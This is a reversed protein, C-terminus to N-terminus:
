TALSEGTADKELIERRILSLTVSGQARLHQPKVVARHNQTLFTADDAMRAQIRIVFDVIEKQPLRIRMHSINQSYGFNYKRILVDMVCFWSHHLDFTGCMRKSINSWKPIENQASSYHEYHKAFHRCSQLVIKRLERLALPWDFAGNGLLFNPNKYDTSFEWMGIVYTPVGIALYTYDKLTRVAIRRADSQTVRFVKKTLSTPLNHSAAIRIEFQDRDQPPSAPFRTKWLKSVRSVSRKMRDEFCSGCSSM